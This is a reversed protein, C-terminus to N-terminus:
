TRRAHSRVSAHARSARVAVKAAPRARVRSEVARGRYCACMDRASAGRKKVIAADTRGNAHLRSEVPSSRPVPPTEFAVTPLPEGADPGPDVLPGVDVTPDVVLAADVDVDTDDLSALEEDFESADDLLASLLLEVPPEIVQASHPAALQAAAMSSQEFPQKLQLFQM